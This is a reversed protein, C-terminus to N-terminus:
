SNEFELKTFRWQSSSQSATVDGHDHRKALGNADERHQGVTEDDRYRDQKRLGLDM